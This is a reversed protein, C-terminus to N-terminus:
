KPFFVPVLCFNNCCDRSLKVVQAALVPNMEELLLDSYMVKQLPLFFSAVMSSMNVEEGLLIKGATRHGGFLFGM